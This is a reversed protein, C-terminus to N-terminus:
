NSYVFSRVERQVWEETMLNNGKQGLTLLGLIMPAFTLASSFFHHSKGHTGRPYEPFTQTGRGKKYKKKKLRRHKPNEPPKFCQASGKGGPKTTGETTLKVKFKGLSCDKTAETGNFIFRAPYGLLFVVHQESPSDNTGHLTWIRFPSYLDIEAWIDGKVSDKMLMLRLLVGRQEDNM